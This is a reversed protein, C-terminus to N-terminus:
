LNELWNLAAKKTSFVEFKYKGNEGLKQYLMSIATNKPNDVIIADIIYDYKELSKENEAIIIELDNIDFNFNADNTDTIIKLLRPFSNNEKTSIIYDLIEKLYVEGVFISELIGTEYNFKSTVM